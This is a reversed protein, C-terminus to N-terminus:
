EAKSKQAFLYGAVAGLITCAEGRLTNTASLGVMAGIVVVLGITKLWLTHTLNLKTIEAQTQRTKAQEDLTAKKFSEVLELARNALQHGRESQLFELMFPGIPVDAKELADIVHDSGAAGNAGAVLQEQGM